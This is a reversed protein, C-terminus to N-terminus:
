NGDRRVDFINADLIICAGFLILSTWHLCGLQGCSSCCLCSFSSPSARNGFFGCQTVKRIGIAVGFCSDGIFLIGLLRIGVWAVSVRWVFNPHADLGTTHM